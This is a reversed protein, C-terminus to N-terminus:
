GATRAHHRDLFQGFGEFGPAYWGYYLNWGIIQPIQTIGTKNYRDFDGHCSIMTYRSPDEKRRNLSDLTKALKTVDAFYKQQEPSDRQYRPVLLVENM